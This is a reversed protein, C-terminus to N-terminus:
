SLAELADKLQGIYDQLMRLIDAKRMDFFVYVTFGEPILQDRYGEAGHTVVYSIVIADEYANPGTTPEEYTYVGVGTVPLKNHYAATLSPLDMYRVSGDHPLLKFIERMYGGIQNFYSGFLVVLKM